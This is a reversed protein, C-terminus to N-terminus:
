YWVTGKGGGKKKFKTQIVGGKRGGKGNNFGKGKGGKGSKWSPLEERISQFKGKGKSGKSWGKSQPVAVLVWQKGKSKGKSGGGWSSNSGKGNGKQGKGKTSFKAQKGKGKVKKQSQKLHKAWEQLQNMLDPNVKGTVNVGVAIPAEGEKEKVKFTIRDGIKVNAVNNDGPIKADSGAIDKVKQCQIFFSYPERLSQNRIYGKFIQGAFAGTVTNVNRKKAKGKGKSWSKGKGKGKGKPPGKVKLPKLFSKRVPKWLRGILSKGRGKGKGRQIVM